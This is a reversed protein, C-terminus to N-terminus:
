RITKALRVVHHLKGWAEVCTIYVNEDESLPVDRILERLVYAGDSPSTRPAQLGEASSSATVEM